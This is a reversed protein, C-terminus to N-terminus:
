VTRVLKFAETARYIQPSRLRPISPFSIANFVRQSYCIAQHAQLHSSTWLPADRPSSLYFRDWHLLIHSVLLFTAYAKSWRQGEKRNELIGGGEGWEKRKVLFHSKAPILNEFRAFGLIWILAYSKFMRIEKMSEWLLLSATLILELLWLYIYKM